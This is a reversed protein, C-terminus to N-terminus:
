SVLEKAEADPTPEPRPGYPGGAEVETEGARFRRSMIRLVLILTVGVVAYIGLMSIQRTTNSVNSAELFVRNSAWLGLGMLVLAVFMGAERRLQNM